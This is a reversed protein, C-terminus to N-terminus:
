IRASKWKWWADDRLGFIIRESKYCFRLALFFLRVCVCVFMSNGPACVRLWGLCWCVRTTYPVGEWSFVCWVCESFWLVFMCVWCIHVYFLWVGCMVGYIGFGDCLAHPPAGGWGWGGHPKCANWASWVLIECVPPIGGSRSRSNKAEPSKSASERIHKNRHPRTHTHTHM